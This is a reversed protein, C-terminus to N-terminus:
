VRIKGSILRPLLRDRAAALAANHNILAQREEFLDQYIEVFDEPPVLIDISDIHKKGLHAVTAGMVTKEFFKIPEYIAQMIYGKYKPNKPRFCCSRQVLYADNGGWTNIHFEGDMGILIDGNHIIYKDPATETTYDNSQGAPINRIRIIQTGEGQDNFLAGDFAYGYLVDVITPLKVVDWGEPLGKDFKTHQYGPFRFRVFWEKYLERASEELLAIRRNNVEILEDYSSLLSAIRRQEPLPPLSFKISKLIDITLAPQSSGIRHNLIWEKGFPSKLLLYLFKSNVNDKFNRFWTLNGDKFYFDQRNIYYPIGLTGVSTLLIDGCQPVGYREKIEKYRSECIFLETSIDRGESLEIIEKSRFFPVGYPVYESQYIRKSSTIECIEGLKYEKWEGM